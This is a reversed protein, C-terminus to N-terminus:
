ACYLDKPKGWISLAAYLAGTKAAGSEGTLSIAVGNYILLGYSYVWIRMAYYVHADRFRESKAKTRSNEM